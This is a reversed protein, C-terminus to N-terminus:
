GQCSIPSFTRQARSIKRFFDKKRIEVHHPKEIKKTRIWAYLFISLNKEIGIYTAKPQSEYAAFLIRGDGCGLDYVVSNEKIDLSDIIESIMVRPVPVFPAEGKLLRIYSLLYSFVLFFAALFFLFFLLYVFFIM